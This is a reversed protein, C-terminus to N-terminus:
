VTMTKNKFFILRSKVKISKMSMDTCSSIWGIDQLSNSLVKLASVIKNVINRNAVYRFAYINQVDFWSLIVSTM